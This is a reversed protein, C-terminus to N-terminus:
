TWKLLSWDLTGSTLMGKLLKENPYLTKIFYFVDLDLKLAEKAKDELYTIRVGEHYIKISNGTLSMTYKGSINLGWYPILTSEEEKYWFFDSMPDNLLIEETKIDDELFIKYTNMSFNEPLNIDLNAGLLPYIFNNFDLFSIRKVLRGYDNSCYVNIGKDVIKFYRFFYTSGGIDIGRISKSINEIDHFGVRFQDYSCTVVDETKSKMVLSKLNNKIKLENSM